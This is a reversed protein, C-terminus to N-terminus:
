KLSKDQKKQVFLLTNVTSEWKHLLLLEGLMLICLFIQSNARM